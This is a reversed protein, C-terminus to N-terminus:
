IVLANGPLLLNSIPVGHNFVRKPLMSIAAENLSDAGVGEGVHVRIPPM